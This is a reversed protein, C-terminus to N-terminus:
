LCKRCKSVGHACKPVPHTLVGRPDAKMSRLVLKLSLPVFDKCIRNGVQKSFCLQTNISIWLSGHWCFCQGFAATVNNGGSDSPAWKACCSVVSRSCQVWLTSPSPFFARSSNCNGHQAGSAMSSCDQGGQNGLTGSQGGEGWLALDFQGSVWSAQARLSSWQCDIECSM